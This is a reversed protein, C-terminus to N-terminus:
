TMTCNQVIQCLGSLSSSLDTSSKLCNILMSWQSPWLNKLNIRRTFEHTFDCSLHCLMINPYSSSIHVNMSILSDNLSEVLSQTFAEESELVTFLNVVFLSLSWDFPHPPKWFNYQSQITLHGTQSSLFRNVSDFVLRNIHLTWSRLWSRNAQLLLYQVGRTFQFTSLASGCIWDPRQLDITDLVWSHIFSLWNEVIQFITWLTYENLLPKSQEDQFKTSEHFFENIQFFVMSILKKISRLLGPSDIWSVSFSMFLLFIRLRASGVSLSSAAFLFYTSSFVSVISENVKKKGFIGGSTEENLCEDLFFCCAPIVCVVVWVIFYEMIITYYQNKQDIVISCSHLVFCFIESLGLIDVEVFLPLCKKKKEHFNSIKDEKKLFFHIGCAGNM